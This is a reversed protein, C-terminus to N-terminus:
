RDDDYSSDDKKEDSDAEDDDKSGGTRSSLQESSAFTDSTGESVGSDTVTHVSAASQGALSERSAGNLRSTPQHM